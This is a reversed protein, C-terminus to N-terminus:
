RSMETTVSAIGDGDTFVRFSDPAVLHGDDDQKNRMMIAYRLEAIGEATKRGSVITTTEWSWGETTNVSKEITYLTFRDDSGIVYAEGSESTVTNQTESYVSLNRGNQSEVHLRFDYFNGYDGESSHILEVPSVEYIGVINPPTCGENIELYQSLSDQEAPSLVSTPIRDNQVPLLIIDEGEKMCGAMLVAAFVICSLLWPLCRTTQSHKVM